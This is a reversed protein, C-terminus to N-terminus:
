SVKRPIWNEVYSVASLLEKRKVDKYSAVGFRDKIERYLEKFLKPRQTPDDCLEYVKSAIAKQLRRQEGHDLTIQEEVKQDVQTILKRIEHQEQKIAQTDEVLDATTRLVTVLAQDKSLPVVNNKLAQEMQEFKSVYTATFLVGKEGTLKNAVMDCGKKTLLYCPLTRGTRDQYSSEIFFDSLGFNSATLIESYGKIDRMLHSHQKAVMEAVERSDVLLQGNHNIVNLQNM